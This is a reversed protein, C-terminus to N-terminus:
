GGTGTGDDLVSEKNLSEKFGKVGIMKLKILREYYVYLLMLLCILDFFFGVELCMFEVIKQDEFEKGRDRQRSERWLLLGWPLYISLISWVFMLADLIMRCIAWFRIQKRSIYWILPVCSVVLLCSRVMGLKNRTIAYEPRQSYERSMIIIFFFDFCTLSDIIM